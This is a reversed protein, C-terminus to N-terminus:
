SIAQNGAGDEVVASDRGPDSAPHIISELSHFGKLDGFVRWFLSQCIFPSYKLLLMEFISISTSSRNAFVAATRTSVLFGMPLRGPEHQLDTPSTERKEGLQNRVDKVFSM